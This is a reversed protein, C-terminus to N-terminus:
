KTVQHRIPDAASPMAHVRSGVKTPGSPRALLLLQFVNSSNVVNVEDIIDLVDNRSAVFWAVMSSNGSFMRRSKCLTFLISTRAFELHGFLVGRSLCAWRRRASISNMIYALVM